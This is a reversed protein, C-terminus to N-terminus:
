KLSIVQKSQTESSAKVGHYVKMDLYSSGTLWRENQEILLAGLLRLVSNENPFIRIVRERRRVEENLREIVNTSRLRRQLKKPLRYITTVESFQEDLMHAVKPLTKHYSEILKQQRQKAEVLTPANFVDKLQSAVAARRKQPTHNLCDRQFHVQCRQWVTGQFQSAIAKKLGCHADSVILDVGHLGRAKLNVFFDQWSTASESDGLQFGLVERHGDPRIGLAILLSKSTIIGATRVKVMMADVYVFAYKTTLPRHRFSEVIPDLKACLASVTSKSFTTGCLETTIVEVKRTSVGQVVMEMLALDFAQESRRYRSFLQTSFTGQRLKPVHLTLTGVRTTLTRPRYGNRYNDRNDSREYQKANIQDTVEMKMIQDFIQSLLAKVAQDRNGLILEKLTAQDISFNVQTM